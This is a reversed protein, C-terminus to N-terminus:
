KGNRKEIVSWCGKDQAPQEVHKREPNEEVPIIFILSNQFLKIDSLHIERM